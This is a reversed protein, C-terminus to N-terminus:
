SFAIVNTIWHAVILPWLRGLKLYVAMYCLGLLFTLSMRGLGNGWHIAAFFFASIICIQWHIYGASRLWSLAFKRFVLEESLAVLFLGISLDLFHLTPNDIKLFQFWVSFGTAAIVPVEVFHYLLLDLLVMALIAVVAPEWRPVLPSPERAIQRSVPWCFCVALVFARSFYDILYVGFTNKAAIFGIDNIFFPAALILFTLRRQYLTIAPTSV